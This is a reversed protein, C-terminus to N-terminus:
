ERRIKKKKKVKKVPKKKKVAPEPKKEEPAQTMQPAPAAAVSRREDMEKLQSTLTQITTMAEDLKAKNDNGAKQVELIQKQLLTIQEKIPDPEPPGASACATLLIPLIILVKKFTMM